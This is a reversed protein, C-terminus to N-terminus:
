NVIWDMAAEALTPQGPYEDVILGDANIVGELNDSHFSIQKKGTNYVGMITINEETIRLKGKSAAVVPESFPFNTDNCALVMVRNLGRRKMEKMVKSAEVFETKKYNGLIFKNDRVVGHGFVVGDYKYTGDDNTQNAVWEGMQTEFAVNTTSGDEPHIALFKNGKGPRNVETIKLCKVHTTFVDEVKSMKSKLAEASFVDNFELNRDTMVWATAMVVTVIIIGYKITKMSVLGILKKITEIM